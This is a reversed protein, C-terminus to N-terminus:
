EEPVYLRLVVVRNQLEMTGMQIGVVGAEPGILMVPSHLVEMEPLAQM